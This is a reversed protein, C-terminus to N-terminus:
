HELDIEAPMLAAKLNMRGEYIARAGTRFVGDIVYWIQAFDHKHLPLGAGPEYRLFGVSSM